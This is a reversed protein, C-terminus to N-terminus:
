FFSPSFKVTVGTLYLHGDHFKFRSVWLCADYFYTNMRPLLETTSHCSGLSNTAPEFGTEREMQNRSTGARIVIFVVTYM